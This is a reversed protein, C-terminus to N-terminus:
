HVIVLRQNTRGQYSSVCANYVGQTLNQTNITSTPSSLVQTLLLNGTIDFLQLTQKEFANTEIVFNETAPNPYINEVTKVDCSVNASTPLGTLDYKFVGGYYIGAFLNTGSVALCMVVPNTLGTNLTTWSTGNNTSLFVGEGSGTAGAFINNGSVAFATILTDTL